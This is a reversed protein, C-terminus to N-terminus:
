TPGAARLDSSTRAILWHHAAGEEGKEEVRWSFDRVCIDVARRVSALQIDDVFVIGGERVLGDAHVLDSLVREFVHSGDIFALDFRTGASLLRPLLLQSEEAHFEVLDRVGADELARLGAGQFSTAANPSSEFQYPDCAVHEAGPGNELLGECIFLTAMAWGLGVELTRKADESHVYGRLDDGERPGIAVPFLGPKALLGDRAARPRAIRTVLAATPPRGV